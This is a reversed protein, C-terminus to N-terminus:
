VVTSAVGPSGGATAASHMLTRYCLLRLVPHNKKGGRHFFVRIRRSWALGLRGLLLVHGASASCLQPPRVARAQSCATQGPLTLEGGQVRLM